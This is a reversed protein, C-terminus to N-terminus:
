IEASWACTLWSRLMGVLPTKKILVLAIKFNEKLVLSVMPRLYGIDSPWNAM